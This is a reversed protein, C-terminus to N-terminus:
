LYTMDFEPCPKFAGSDAPGIIQIRVLLRQFGVQPTLQTQTSPFAAYLKKALDSFRSVDSESVPESRTGSTDVFGPSMSVVTFGENELAVAYKTAVMHEAAKTIGYAAIESLHVRRVFDREGVESGIIIIKKMTGKRLLPLFANITHIPGLVNVRLSQMFEEDLQDESDYDLLGRLLNDFEVRAANYIFVDLTGGTIRAAETAAAQIAQKDVVDAELIHLKKHPLQNVIDHLQTSKQKSRVTTLVINEGDLAVLYSPM